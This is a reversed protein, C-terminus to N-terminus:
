LAGWVVYGVLGVLAIWCLWYTAVSWTPQPTGGEMRHKDIMGWLHLVLGIAILPLVLGRAVSALLIGIGVGLVGAGVTSTLEAMKLRSAAIM